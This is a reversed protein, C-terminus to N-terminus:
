DLDYSEIEYAFYLGIDFDVFNLGMGVHDFGVVFTLNM